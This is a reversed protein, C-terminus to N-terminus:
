PYDLVKVVKFDEFNIKSHSEQLQLLPRQGYFSAWMSFTSPVGVIFDCGSLLQLDVMFHRTEFEIHLGTFLSQDIVGNSCIIFGIKKNKFADLQNIELLKHVYTADDFFWQGKKFDAYDGRRIHVGILVEFQSRYLTIQREVTALIHANPQWFARIQHQHKEFNPADLFRWGAVLVLKSRAKQVFVPDNLDFVMSATYDYIQIIEIFLLKKINFKISMRILFGLSRRCLTHLWHNRQFIFRMPSHIANRAQNEDFYEFYENFRAQYVRYDSAIANALFASAHFIRNCLQGQKGVIIVM